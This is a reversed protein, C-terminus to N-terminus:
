EKIFNIHPDQVHKRRKEKENESLNKHQIWTYKQLRHKKKDCCVKSKEKIDSLNYVSQAYERIREKKEYHKKSTSKIESINNIISM